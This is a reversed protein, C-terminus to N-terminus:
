KVVNKLITEKDPFLRFLFDSKSPNWKTRTMTDLGVFVLPNEKLFKEISWDEIFKLIEKKDGGCLIIRLM